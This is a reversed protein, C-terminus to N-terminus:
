TSRWSTAPNNLYVVGGYSRRAPQGAENMAWVGNFACTRVNDATIRNLPRLQQRPIGIM